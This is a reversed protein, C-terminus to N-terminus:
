HRRKQQCGSCFPLPKSQGIGPHQNMLRRHAPQRALRRVDINLGALDETHPFDRVVDQGLVRALGQFLDLPINLAIEDHIGRLRFFVPEYVLNDRTM